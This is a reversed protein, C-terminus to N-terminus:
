SYRDHLVFPFCVVHIYKQLSVPSSVWKPFRSTSVVIVDLKRFGPMLSYLPNMQNVIPELHTDNLPM